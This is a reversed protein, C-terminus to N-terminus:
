VHLKKKCHPCFELYYAYEKGCFPCLAQEMDEDNDPADPDESVYEEDSLKGPMFMEIKGCQNCVFIEAELTGEFIHSLNPMFFTAKGLQIHRSGIYDMHGDCRICLM